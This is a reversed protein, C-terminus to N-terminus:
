QKTFVYMHILKSDAVMYLSMCDYMLNTHMNTHKNTAKFLLVNTVSYETKGVICM